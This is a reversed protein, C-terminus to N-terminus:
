RMVKRIGHKLMTQVYKLPRKLVNSIKKSEDTNRFLYGKNVWALDFSPDLNLAQDCCEIANEIEELNAHIEGKCNWALSDEPDNRFNKSVNM